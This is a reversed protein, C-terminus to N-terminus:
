KQKLAIYALFIDIVVNYLQFLRKYVIFVRLELFRFIPM